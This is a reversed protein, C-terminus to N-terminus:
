TVRHNTNTQPGQRVTFLHLAKCAVKCVLYESLTQEQIDPLWDNQICFANRRQVCVRGTLLVQASFVVSGTHIECDTRAPFVSEIFTGESRAEDRRPSM